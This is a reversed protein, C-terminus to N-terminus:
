PPLLDGGLGLAPSLSDRAGRVAVGLLQLGLLCVSRCASQAPPCTCAEWGARGAPNGAWHAPAWPHRCTVSFCAATLWLPLRGSPCLTPPGLGLPHREVNFAAHPRGAPVTVVTRPCHCPRLGAGSPTRAWAVRAPQHRAPPQPPVRSRPWRSKHLEPCMWTYAGNRSLGQAEPCCPPEKFSVLLNRPSLFPVHVPGSPPVPNCAREGVSAPM